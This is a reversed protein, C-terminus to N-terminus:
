SDTLSDCNVVLVSDRAYLFPYFTAAVVGTIFSFLKLSCRHHKYAKNPYRFYPRRACLLTVIILIIVRSSVDIDVVALYPVACMLLVMCYVHIAYGGKEKSKKLTRVRAIGNHFTFSIEKDHLSM